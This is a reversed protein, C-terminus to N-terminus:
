MFNMFINDIESMTIGLGLVLAHDFDDLISPPENEGNEIMKKAEEYWFKPLITRDLYHYRIDIIREKENQSKFLPEKYLYAKSMPYKEGAIVASICIGITTGIDAQVEDFYRCIEDSEEANNWGAMLGVLFADPLLNHIGILWETLNNASEKLEKLKIKLNESVHIIFDLNQCLENFEDNDGDSLVHMKLQATKHAGLIWGNQYLRDVLDILEEKKYFNGAYQFARSILLNSRAGNNLFQLSLFRRQYGLYDMLPVGAGINPPDIVVDDINQAIRDLDQFIVPLNVIPNERLIHGYDDSLERQFLYEYQEDETLKKVVDEFESATYLSSISRKYNIYKLIDSM